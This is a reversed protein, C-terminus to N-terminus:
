WLLLTGSDTRLMQMQVQQLHFAFIICCPVLQTSFLCFVIKYYLSGIVALPSPISLKRTTLLRYLICKVGGCQALLMLVLPTDIQILPQLNLELSFCCISSIAKNYWLLPSMPMSQINPWGCYFVAEHVCSYECARMCAHVCLCVCVCVCSGPTLQM